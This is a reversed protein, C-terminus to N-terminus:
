IRHRIDDFLSHLWQKERKKGYPHGGMIYWPARELNKNTFLVSLAGKAYLNVFKLKGEKRVRRLSLVNLTERIIDLKFGAKVIRQTIDFDEGFTLRENYGGVKVFVDSSMVTFGGPALYKHFLISGEIYANALLTLLVDGSSDSDPSFWSTLLVPHFRGIYTDIREICYPLLISDADVFIFWAGKAEHGGLNRQLPLNATKSTIVALRLLKKEFTKAVAVTKDRSKADVVIVEFNSESQNM